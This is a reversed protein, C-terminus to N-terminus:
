QELVFQYFELTKRGVEKWDLKEAVKQCDVRLLDREGSTLGVLQDAAFLVKGLDSASPVYKIAGTEEGPLEIGTNTLVPCGYALSENVANSGAACRLPLWQAASECYYQALDTDSVDLCAKVNPLSEVKDLLAPGLKRNVLIFKWTPRRERCLEVFRFYLDWDRQWNGVTIFKDRQRQVESNRSREIKEATHCGLPICAIRESPIYKELLCKQGDTIAIAGGLEKFRSKTLQHALRYIRGSKDGRSLERELIEPPQHFTAVIRARSPLLCSFRFYEEAYLLHILPIQRMRAYAAASFESLWKYRRTILTGVFNSPRAENIGFVKKPATYRLLQKYGSNEGHHLFSTLVAVNPISAM